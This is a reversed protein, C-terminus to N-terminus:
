TQAPTAAAVEDITLSGILALLATWEASGRYASLFDALERSTAKGGSAENPTHIVFIHQGDQVLDWTDGSSSAYIRRAPM